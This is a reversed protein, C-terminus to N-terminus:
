VNGLVEMNRERIINEVLEKLFSIDKRLPNSCCSSFSVVGYKTDVLDNHIFKLGKNDDIFNSHCHECCRDKHYKFEDSSCCLYISENLNM